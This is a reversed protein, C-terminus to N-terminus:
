SISTGFATFIYTILSKKTDLYVVYGPDMFNEIVPSNDIRIMEIGYFSRKWTFM